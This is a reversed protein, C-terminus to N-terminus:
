KPASEAAPITVRLRHPGDKKIFKAKAKPADVVVPLTLTLEGYGPAVVTVTRAAVDLAVEKASALAPLAINLVISTQKDDLSRQVSLTHEPPRPPPPKSAAADPEPHAAVPPAPAGGSGGAVLKRPAAAVDSDAGIRRPPECVVVDTRSALTRGGGAPPVAVADAGPGTLRQPGSPPPASAGGLKRPAECVVLDKDVATHSYFKGQLRETNPAKAGASVPSTASKAPEPEARSGRACAPTSRAASDCARKAGPPNLLLDKGLGAGSTDICDGRDM